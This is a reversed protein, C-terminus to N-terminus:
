PHAELARLMKEPTIHWDRVWVGTADHIASAISPAAANVSIESVSKAGFPGVPDNSPVLFAKFDEPLDGVMPAGYDSFNANVVRGQDDYEIAEQLTHGIARMSAGYVQGLALDPNIPTGCDLLAHFKRLTVKGTRTDVAVEAFNAGYPFAFESTIFSGQGMLQGCGTGSEAYHAIEGFSITKKSCSGVRVKCPYELTLEEEPEELLHAATKLIKRRLDEAALKAANGSFCVGSSAYAGKDFLCHDTDGSVVHVDELETCLVEATLKAVVTDLGTGIDSGGSHVIVTGDSALKIWANAQDIDPIGSKQQMTAVGRGIKVAPSVPEEKPTGWGFEAAGEELIRGLACSRVVPVSSPLKGEGVKALLDLRQGEHVRNKEIMDLHDIGLADAMEAVIMQVSFNGQPGGYGQYAGTPVINSYYTDVQFRVNPCPYLPLSIAPANCPVTLAHNGYPGTNFRYNVDIATITGDKKAGMKIDVESVHRSSTAIFEEERTHRFFVPHGTTYTAFACVEEVLVDQKSGFGGGLREKIVHVKHQKIGLVIAIKRRLHWPVQTSARVVVRDGEMYTYCLHQEPPLQQAQRSQYSRELIVDAESFGKDIDGIEGHGRAAINKRPDGGFPFNFHIRGDRPDANKNQEDLNDPAGAGYSIVGNHVIPADDAMAEAISLVPKLVEYEVRITKLAATAQVETEAVVAAVRDGYHRMKQGFMRRDLPSPEPATQGGPTYYVDPCSRYDFVAVVGPMSEAEATDISTIYAHAHPSRLMKLVCAEPVVFDEVFCPEAKISRVADVKVGPRGVQRNDGSFSPVSRAIYTADAMRHRAIDVADFVQQYACERLFLSSLVDTIDGRSPNPNRKLLDTILLALVPDNYGSQIVGADILASQVPSLKGYENLSEPTVVKRGELQAAILLSANVSCGDLLISDSGTFGYGDDSNRVSRMGLRKLLSQVNEGAEAQVQTLKGNLHFIIDM